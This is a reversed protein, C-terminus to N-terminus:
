CRYQQHKEQADTIGRRVYWLKWITCKKTSKKYPKIREPDPDPDLFELEQDPDPFFNRIIHM